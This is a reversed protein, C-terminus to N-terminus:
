PFAKVAVKDGAAVPLEISAGASLLRRASTAATVAVATTDPTSGVCVYCDTDTAVRAIQMGNRLEAATVATTSTAQTGSITLNESRICTDNISSSDRDSFGVKGLEVSATAM